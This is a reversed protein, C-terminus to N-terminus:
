VKELIMCTKTGKEEESEMTVQFGGPNVLFTHAPFSLKLKEPEQSADPIGTNQCGNVLLLQVPM